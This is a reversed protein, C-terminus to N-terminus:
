ATLYPDTLVEGTWCPFRLNHLTNRPMDELSWGQRIHWALIVVRTGPWPMTAHDLTSNFLAYPQLSRLRGRGGQLMADGTDDAVWLEGVSQWRSAPIIASSVRRHNHSHRHVPMQIDRSLAVSSFSHGSIVSTVITTLLLTSWPYDLTNNFVGAQGSFVCAGSQFLLTEAEQNVRQRARKGVSPKSRLLKACTAINGYTVSLEPTPGSRM